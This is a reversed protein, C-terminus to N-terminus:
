RLKEIERDLARWEAPVAHRNPLPPPDQSFWARDVGPALPVKDLYRQAASDNGAELWRVMAEAAATCLVVTVIVLLSNKLVNRM